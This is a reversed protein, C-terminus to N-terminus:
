SLMKSLFADVENKRPLGEQAGYRICKLAAVANAFIAAKRLNEGRIVYAYIFGANFADGAGTTDVVKVKFAPVIFHDKETVVLCGKEGLTIVVINPGLKMLKKAAKIFDKERTLAILGLKNPLLINTRKLLPKLVDMGYDSVHKELDFSTIIGSKYAVDMAILSAEPKIGTIHLAKAELIFNLDIDKPDPVNNKLNMDQIIVKTGERDVILFNVATSRNPWIKVKSIDVGEKKLKNLVINGYRDNGVGGIFATKAGLRALAVLFNATVGGVFLKYERAFVKEDPQPLHDVIAVWDICVEGLGIVDVKSM